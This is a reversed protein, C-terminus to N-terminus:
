EVAVAIAASHQIAGSTATVTVTYSQVQPQQPGSGGGGCAAPLITATLLLCLAWVRRRTKAFGTAIILGTIGLPLLAAYLPAPPMRGPSPSLATAMALASITLTSDAGSAVSSPSLACTPMPSPGSVLCKLGITGSFGGKAPFVLVDTVQSGRKVTVSTAAPSITFDSVTITLNAINNSPNQDSEDSAITTNAAFGAAGLTVIYSMTVNSGSALTGLTCNIWATNMTCGGASITVNSIQTTDTSDALTVNTAAAPGGNSILVSVTVEDGPSGVNQSAAASVALDAPVVATVSISASNNKSNLDPQTAALQLADTFTGEATPTVTFSVAAASPDAISGLDCTITITTTGTCTGQSPQASVLKLGSPLNETLIVGSADHPGESFVTVTYSLKDGVLANAQTPYTTLALDAGSTPSTNLLVTISNTSSATLVMDPLGDGNFDASAIFTGALSVVGTPPDIPSVETFSSGNGAGLLLTGSDGQKMFLDLKNDANFDAAIINASHFIFSSGVLVGSNFTGDGNGLYLIVRFTSICFEHCSPPPPIRALGVLDVRHDYNFDGASFFGPDASDAGPGPTQFTGDGNGLLIGGDAVLDPKGDGNFDGVITSAIAGSRGLSIIKAPQFTGDGNGLLVSLSADSRDGIILDLKTDGNLDGVAMSLPSQGAKIQVPPQFTGDGAGLLINAVGPTGTTADGPSIVILDLKHDRNFDGVALAYPAPGAPSNVAGKFTGDGNGLLISVNASGLNAVAIDPKGDGNFDGIVVASPSTGVPYSKAPAFDAAGSNAPVCISILLVLAIALNRNMARM